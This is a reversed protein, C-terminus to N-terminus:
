AYLTQIARQTQEAYTLGYPVTKAGDAKTVGVGHISRTSSTPWFIKATTLKIAGLGRLPYTTQMIGKGYTRAVGSEDETLCIDDYGIAGYGYMCGILCESASATQNDALVTIQSDATFYAAYVNDTAKFKEKKEGYDAIAVVPRNEKGANKCFYKAISQFIEMYGGGNGRLDIVLDTKGDQRFLTMASDFAVDANGNFQVIQIYAADAHLYSLPEGVSKARASDEGNATFGYSHTSTKYYIYNEVYDKKTLEGTQIEGEVTRWQMYFPEGYAVSSLYASLDNRDECATIKSLADGVGIIVDGKQLGADEAPSNGAVRYVLTDTSGRLFFVGIGSQKGTAQQQVATYTEETMYESYDDLLYDNIGTYAAEFFDAEQYTGTQKKENVSQAVADYFQEDTVEEYYEQQIKNKIRVLARVDRGFSLWCALFGGLFLVIALSIALSVRLIKKRKGKKGDPAVDVNEEDTRTELGEKDEM